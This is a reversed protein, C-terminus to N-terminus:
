TARRGRERQENMSRAHAALQEAIDAVGAIDEVSVAYELITLLARAIALDHDSPRRQLRERTEPDCRM